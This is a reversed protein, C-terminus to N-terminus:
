RNGSGTGIVEVTYTPLLTSFRWFCALPLLSTGPIADASLQTMGEVTYTPLLASFRQLCALALLSTGPIAGASGGGATLDNGLM